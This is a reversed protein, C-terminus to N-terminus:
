AARYCRMAKGDRYIPKTEVHLVRKLKRGFATTGVPEMNCLDCWESYERYVDTATRKLVYEPQIGEESLWAMASDNSLRVDERMADAAANFTPESNALLRRLGEVALVILRQAASETSLKRAIDPDFGSEGPRFTARLPIPKLRRMFGYDNSKISPFRNYCLVLAAYPRFDFGDRGKVDTHVLNGASIRKIAASLDESITQSSADDALVALKGSISAGQFRKDLNEPQMSSYNDPGLMGSVASLFASKGNGGEGILVWFFQLERGRYLCHGALEELNARTAAEGCSISDLFGDVLPCEAEPNWDHPIQNTVVANVGEPRLEMTEIDLVGNRFGIYRPNTEDTRPAQLRVAKMAEARTNSKLNPYENIIAREVEFMGASYCLGTRVVPTGSVICAGRDNMLWDAVERHIPTKDNTSNKTAATAVGASTGLRRGDSATEPTGEIAKAITMEGYTMEGRRSDWKDRMLASSRFLADMVAPDNDSFFALYNCLAQDASSDDDNHASTDGLEYLPRIKSDWVASRKMRGLVALPDSNAAGRANLTGQIPADRKTEGDAIWTRYAKSVVEPNASITAHGEFVEGTVTFFRGHDYMEVPGKRCKGAGEPKGGLFILHLGDGSPSVECYTHAEEVVWRYPESLKGDAIVHDLDLGTYRRDPSFVFGIGSAGFRGVASLATDFDSWTASDTSSAGKGTLPNIPIKTPKGDREALKWCVWRPEAKLEPPVRDYRSTM